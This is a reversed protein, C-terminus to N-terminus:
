DRNRRKERQEASKVKWAHRCMDCRCYMNGYTSARGHREDGPPPPTRACVLCLRKGRASRFDTYEHGRQCTGVGSYQNRNRGRQFMDATNDRHTGWRLNSVNNNLVNDDGHLVLPLGTPNPIFATAVLRHLSQHQTTRGDRLSLHLHGYRGTPSPKLVKGPTRGMGSAINRVRGLSSVEYLGEYGVVPRWEEESM